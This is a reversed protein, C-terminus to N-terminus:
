QAKLKVNQRQTYFEMIEKMTGCTVLTYVTQVDLSFFFVQVLLFSKVIVATVAHYSPWVHKKTCAAQPFEFQTSICQNLVM